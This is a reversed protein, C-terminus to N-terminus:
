MDILKISKFINADSNISTSIQTQSSHSDKRKKCVSDCIPKTKVRLMPRTESPASTSKLCNQNAKNTLLYSLCNYSFGLVLDPGEDLFVFNIEFIVKKSGRLCFCTNPIGLTFLFLTM